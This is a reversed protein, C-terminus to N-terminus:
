AAPSGPDLCAAARREAEGWTLTSQLSELYDPGVRADQRLGSSDFTWADDEPTLANAVALAALVDFQTQRIRGPAHHHAVAEVVSYPLGWIGLLYAGIEAHSGGCIHLEAEHMSVGNALAWDRARELERPSEHALVWYGIDHVLAALLVDDALPTNVTLARAIAVVKQAHQQLRDFNLPASGPKAPWQAFVEASMVLNRIAGLGLYTVAQEINTIRRSQRFFASNVMQLVKAAIVTDSAVLQAVERAGSTDRALLNQLKAYTGRLPALRQTHGVIARLSPQRLLSQLAICREIVDELVPSECPKSLFQHALPALRVAQETDSLGSLAIRVTEPWRESVTRLLRAGQMGSMRIDSVIVDFPARQFEALAQGGSEAFTMAWKHQMGRLRMRLGELVPVDDDVFLIRNV